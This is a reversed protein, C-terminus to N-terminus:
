DIIWYDLALFLFICMGVWHNNKFSNFCDVKERSKARWLQRLFFIGTITIGMNFVWGRGSQHGCYALLILSCVQCFAIYRLENEAWFIATSGIGLIIDEERDVMAYFTDFAITWFVVSFYLAFAVLSIDHGVASFSVPVVWGWTLGLLLQPINSWRKAFPYIIILVAAVMSLVVTTYNTQMVLFFAVLFLFIFARLAANPNIEGTVIPRNNTRSVQGDIKRDAYDNIVCGAARTVIVGASFIALIDLEPFGDSGLWLAWLTPWLLLYTGIPRDLRVLRIWPNTILKALTPM